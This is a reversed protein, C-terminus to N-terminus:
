EVQKSPIPLAKVMMFISDGQNARGIVVIVVYLCMYVCIHFVLKHLSYKLNNNFSTVHITREVCRLPEKPSDM